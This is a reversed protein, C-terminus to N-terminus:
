ITRRGIGMGMALGSEQLRDVDHRRKADLGDRASVSFMRVSEEGFIASLQQHVYAFAARREEGSVTDHKNIVVFIRRVSASAMRFFRTEEDSLPSEYSTFLLLADAEPLFSETTRTNETIALGIKM